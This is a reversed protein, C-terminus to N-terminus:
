KSEVTSAVFQRGMGGDTLLITAWVYCNTPPAPLGTLDLNGWNGNANVTGSGSVLVGGGEPFAWVNV